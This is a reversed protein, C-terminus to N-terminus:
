ASKQLIDRAARRANKVKITAKIIRAQWDEILMWALCTDSADFAAGEGDLWWTGDEDCYDVAYCAGDDMMALIMTGDRPPPTDNWYNWVNKAGSM